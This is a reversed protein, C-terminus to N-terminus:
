RLREPFTLGQKVLLKLIRRAEAVNKREVFLGYSRSGFWAGSVHHRKLEASIVMKDVDYLNSANAVRVIEPYTLAKSAGISRHTRRQGEPHSQNVQIATTTSAPGVSRDMGGPRQRKKRLIAHIEREIAQIPIFEIRKPNLSSPIVVNHVVDLRDKDDTREHVGDKEWRAKGRTIEIWNINYVHMWESEAKEGRRLFLICPTAIVPNRVMPFIESGDIRSRTRVKQLKAITILDSDIVGNGVIVRLCEFEYPNITPTAYVVVDSLLVLEELTKWIRPRNMTLAPSSVVGVTASGEKHKSFPQSHSEHVPLSPFPETSGGVGNLLIRIALISLSMINM